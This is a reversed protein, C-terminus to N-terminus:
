KLANVIQTVNHRMMALYSPAPGDPETLSHTYLDTVVKAGTEAAVQEALRPDSGTELFVAPAGSARIRDILRALQQASPSAGTSVSPLVTGVIKFGYRDAFYGFSEHNTVLLRREPPIQQVQEVIWADLEKLQQIYAAANTAYDAAGDPDVQSLGDRINEVYRITLNPDLWFHPDAEHHHGAAMGLLLPVEPAKFASLQLRYTGPALEFLSVQELGACAMPFSSEAELTAGDSAQLTLQGSATAIEYDGAHAAQFSVFGAYGDEGALPLSLRLFHMGHEHEVESAESAPRASEDAPEAALPTASTLDAGAKLPEPQMDAVISCLVEAKEEDSMMAEEGERATRSTLGAAAEIVHREGGVNELLETLFEEFGAGNIILVQSDAVRTMDGPAPEFSHPDAGIPMLATITLREGAVQRAIDALFTEVAVVHLGPGAAQAPAGPLGLAAVALMLALGGRLFALLRRRTFTDM